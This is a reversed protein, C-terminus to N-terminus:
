KCNIDQLNEDWCHWLTDGFKSVDKVRGNKSTQSWEIETLNDQGKNYILYYSNLAAKSDNGYKIYGGNEAGSPVINMYKINGTNDSTKNYEISLLETASNADDYLVWDVETRDIRSTGTYWLFDVYVGENSIYMEWDVTEDKITGYLKATFTNAGVSFSYEWLWTNNSQYVPTHNNVAEVYSAVPVALGITILTNWTGVNAASHTWNESTKNSFYKSNDFDSFDAIFSSVPPIDPPREYDKKCSQFSVTAFIFFILKLHKM